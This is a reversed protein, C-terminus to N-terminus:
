MAAGKFRDEAAATSEAVVASLEPLPSQRAAVPNHPLQITYDEITVPKYSAREYEDTHPFPRTADFGIKSGIYDPFGPNLGHGFVNDIAILGTRPDFRTAMAWEVDGPNRIDVDDDVITVM